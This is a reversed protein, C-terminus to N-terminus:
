LSGGTNPISKMHELIRDFYTRLAAKTEEDLDTRRRAMSVRKLEEQAEPKSLAALETDTLIEPVPAEGGTSM